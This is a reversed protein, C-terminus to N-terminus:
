LRVRCWRCNVISIIFWSSLIILSCQGLASANAGVLSLAM